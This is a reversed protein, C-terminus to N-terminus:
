MKKIIEKIKKGKDTLKYLRGFSAKPNICKVLGNKELFLLTRSVSSRQTNLKKSINTAINPINLNLIVKKRLTGNVVLALEKEVM